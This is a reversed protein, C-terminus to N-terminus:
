VPRTEMRFLGYKFCGKRYGILIRLVTLAFIKEKKEANLFYRIGNLNTFLKIVEQVSILWTRWVKDSLDFDDTVTLGSARALTIIENRTCLSPLRGESCIPGLIQSRDLGSVDEASLWATMVFPSGPKLTRKIEEFFKRKNQIHSFCEISFGGDFSHDPRTNALWDELHFSVPLYRSHAEAYELQKKSITIGTSHAAGLTAALRTTEGYGCGIDILKKNNLDGLLSLVKKSLNIVAEDKEESGHEWLGHHLHTGWLERYFLDLEDYHHSIDAVSIAGSQIM